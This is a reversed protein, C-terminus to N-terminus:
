SIFIFLGMFSILSATATHYVPIIDHSPTYQTIYAKLEALSPFSPIM